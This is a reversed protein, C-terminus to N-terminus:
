FGNSISARKLRRSERRANGEESGTLRKILYGPKVGFEHSRDPTGLGLWTIMRGMATMEDKSQYEGLSQLVDSLIQSPVRSVTKEPLCLMTVNKSM